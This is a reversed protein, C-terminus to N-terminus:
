ERWFGLRNQFSVYVCEMQTSNAKLLAAEMLPHRGWGLIHTYVTYVYICTCMSKLLCMSKYVHTQSICIYIYVYILIYIYIFGFTFHRCEMQTHSSSYVLTGKSGTSDGHHTGDRYDGHNPGVCISFPFPFSDVM